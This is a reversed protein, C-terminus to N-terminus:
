SSIIPQVFYDYKCNSYIRTCYFSHENGTVSLTVRVAEVEGVPHLTFVEFLKTMRFIVVHQYILLLPRAKQLEHKTPSISDIDGVNLDTSPWMQRAAQM